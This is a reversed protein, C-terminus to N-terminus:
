SMRREFGNDAKLKSTLDIFRQVQSNNAAPIRTHVWAIAEAKSLKKNKKEDEDNDDSTSDDEVIRPPKDKQELSQGTIVQGAGIGSQPGSPPKIGVAEGMGLAKEMNELRDYIRQLLATEEADDSDTVAQISKALIEMKAFSNVPCNTIAINRVKAQAIIRAGSKNVGARKLVKGEVSLGLRRNTKSLAKGLNWIRDAREHGDLMYGEVWHGAAPAHKGDPLKEGKKFIRTTEPYGVIGDTDKSHNDNFWGDSIAETFDLGRALLQEKQKDDTEISAIGGIRRQQGEPANAKEFFSVPMEFNFPLERAM